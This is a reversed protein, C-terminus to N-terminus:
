TNELEFRFIPQGYGVTVESQGERNMVLKGRVFTAEVVARFSVGDFPTYRGKSHMNASRIVQQDWLNVLAFDADGGPKLSGKRKSLHFRKAVNTSLLEITQQLSIRGTRFGESLLFPVRHEVGPIGGYVEWFNWSSKEKSPNCGAHDTTVFDITGDTLAKWLAERDAAKKVPPATKLFNAIAENQFDDETFHLYHPCTEASIPLGADHAQRILELALASSVHVLHIPCNFQKGIDIMRAVATAEALDDRADCYARWDTRGAIQFKSSRQMVLARDEAHVALLSECERVWMAVAKMVDYNLDQFTPMGSILYAKFGVVGMKVLDYIQRGIDRQKIFDNRRVGGWFAYDIWSQGAIATMKVKLSKASTIPPKSTCPMDMVLTVGGCAAALSGHQFDDRQEFGPTNFHVHADIAGPILLLFRGDLEECRERTATTALQAQVRKWQDIHKLESWPIVSSHRPLIKQIATDFVVDVLQLQNDKQGIFVNKLVRPPPHTM